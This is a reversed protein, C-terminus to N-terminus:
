LTNHLLPNDFKEASHGQIARVYLFKNSSDPNEVIAVFIEESTETVYKNIGNVIRIWSVTRDRFLSGIMIEVGYRGQHSCVKMDLVQGIKTSGRIWVGRPFSEESRLSTHERCSGKVEDLADDLTSFFQGKEINKSFGAKSCLKTLKQHELLEAFKQEYERLLNGQVEVDTQSFLNAIPFKTPIVMSELNDNSAPKVTGRSNQPRETCLEM